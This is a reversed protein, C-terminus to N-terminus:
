EACCLRPHCWTWGPTQEGGPGGVLPCDTQYDANLMIVGVMGRDALGTGECTLRLVCGHTPGEPGSPGAAGQPGPPGEPGQLSLAIPDLEAEVRRCAARLRITAGEVLQGAANKRACMVSADATSSFALTAIAAFWISLRRQTM